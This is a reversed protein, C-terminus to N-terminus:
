RELDTWGIPFGMMWEVFLPSLRAKQGLQQAEETQGIVTNICTAHKGTHRSPTCPNNKADTATPTPLLGKWHKRMTPATQNATATPTPLLLGDDVCIRLELTELPYLQGNQAIGSKPLRDLLKADEEFLSLQSTRWSSSERDYSALSEYCRGGFVRNKEM